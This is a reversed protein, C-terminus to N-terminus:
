PLKLVKGVPLTKLQADTISNLTQIEKWRDGNGLQKQAVKWLTDGAALKYSKPTLKDNARAAAKKTVTVAGSATQGVDVKQAAYFIYKKLTLTYSIDGGSGAVDQWDFSEISVAENIAYHEGILVFRIPRKSAMWKTIYHVYYNQKKGDVTVPELLPVTLNPYQQVSSLGDVTLLKLLPAMLYPHHHAPFLGDFSYTSLKSNQIVNIEGLKTIDYTSGKGSESIEISSPNVPLQFGEAQNNWSLWVGYSM